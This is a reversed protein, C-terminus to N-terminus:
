VRVLVIDVEIDVRVVDLLWFVVDFAWEGVFYVVCM